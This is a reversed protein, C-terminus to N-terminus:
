FIERGKLIQRPGREDIGQDRPRLQADCASITAVGVVGDNGRGVAKTGSGAPSGITLWRSHTAAVMHKAHSGAAAVGDGLDDAAEFCRRRRITRPGVAGDVKNGIGVDARRGAANTEGGCNSRDLGAAHTGLDDGSRERELLPAAPALPVTISGLESASLNGM